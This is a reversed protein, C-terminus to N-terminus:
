LNRKAYKEIVESLKQLSYKKWENITINVQKYNVEKEVLLSELVDETIMKRAVLRQELGIRTLLDKVKASMEISIFQKENLISFISGHFTATIVYEANQLVSCFSMPGCIINQDCWNNYFGVSVLKLERHKAFVKISKIDEKSAMDPYMYILLYKEGKVYDMSASNFFLNRDALFTPDCVLEPEKGTIKKVNNQTQTDRVFIDQLKLIQSVIEQYQEFDTVRAQGSSVSYAVVNEMGVGYFVPSRFVPTCVNWIEDSGLICLDFKDKEELPCIKIIKQDDLFRQFKKYGNLNRKVFRFPHILDRRKPKWTYYIKRIHKEDRTAIFEVEHGMKQLVDQLALGQLFSGFNASDVVTVIGIKM